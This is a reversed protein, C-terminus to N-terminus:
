LRRQDHPKQAAMTSLAPRDAHTSTNDHVLSAPNPGRSLAAQRATKPVSFGAGGNQRTIFYAAVGSLLAILVANSINRRLRRRRIFDRPLSLFTRHHHASASM